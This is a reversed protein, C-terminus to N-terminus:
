CFLGKKVKIEVPKFGIASVADTLVNDAIEDKMSITATKEKLNVKAGTVGEVQQLATEVRSKCHECSMGEVTIIKKM